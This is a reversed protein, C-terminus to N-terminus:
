QLVNCKFMVGRRRFQHAAGVVGRRQSEDVAVAALLVDVVALADLTHQHIDAVAQAVLRLVRVQDEEVGAGHPLVGLLPDEAVHTGQLAELLFLGAQHDAQAAAHGVLLMHHFLQALAIGIHIQDETHVADIGQGLEDGLLQLLVLPDQQLGGLAGDDHLVDGDPPLALEAGPQGDHVAAVVEAGVADHGVDAAALLAALGPIDQGLEATQHLGAVLLDGQQALVDVAVALAQFLLDIERVQEVQEAGHGAIILDAKHGAVRLVGAMLQDIGNRGLRVQALVQMQRHLAAGVPQQHLHVAVIGNLLIQFEDLVGALGHRADGEGAVDDHTEGTLRLLIELACQLQHLLDAIHLQEGEDVGFAGARLRGVERVGGGALFLGVPHGAQQLHLVLDGHCQDFLLHALGDPHQHLAVAPVVAGEGSPQVVVQSHFEGCVRGQQAAIHLYVQGTGAGRDQQAFPGRSGPASFGGQFVSFIM